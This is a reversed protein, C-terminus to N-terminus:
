TAAVEGLTRGEAGRYRARPRILQDSAYQELAHATTRPDGAM